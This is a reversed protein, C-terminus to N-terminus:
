SRLTTVRVTLGGEPRLTADGRPRVPGSDVRSLDVLPLMTALVLSIEAEAFRNGICIRPGDGFPLYAGRPPAGGAFRDPRFEDPAEWLRPDRHVVWPSFLINAGKPIAYGGLVLDHRPSRDFLWAPPYLRLTEKVVRGLRPLDPLDATAVDRPGVVSAIEDRLDARVSPHEGLLHFAWTLAAASTEHGAFFMTLLEDRIEVDSLGPRGADEANLLLSLLDGGDTGSARRRRILRYALEDVRRVTRRRLRNARTPLWDPLPFAQRLMVNLSGAFEHVAAVLDEAETDDDIRFLAACVIRLTLDAMEDLLRVQSGDSWSRVRRRTLDVITQGQAAVSRTHMVPQMLRRHRRHEDGELTILGRGLHGRLSAHTRNSKRFEDPRKAIMEVILDAEAVLYMPVPGMRLRTIGGYSRTVDLLAQPMDRQIEPLSGLLWHGRPGPPRPPRAPPTPVPM